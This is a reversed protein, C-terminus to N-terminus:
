RYGGPLGESLRALEDLKDSRVRAQRERYALVDELRMFRRSGVRHHAIEGEGLLKVVFPRSVLLLDAAEQMTLEKGHPVLTVSQGRAM